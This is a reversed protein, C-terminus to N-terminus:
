RKGANQLLRWIIGGEEGEVWEGVAALTVRSVSRCDM